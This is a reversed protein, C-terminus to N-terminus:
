LSRSNSDFADASLEVQPLVVISDLLLLVDLVLVLVSVLAVEFAHKGLLEDLLMVEILQPGEARSGVFLLSGNLFDNSLLKVLEYLLVIKSFLVQLSELLLEELSKLFNKLLM